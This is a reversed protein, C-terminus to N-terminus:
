IQAFSLANTRASPSSGGCREVASGLGAADVLEAVGAYRVYDLPVAALRPSIVHPDQKAAVFHSKRGLRLTAKADPRRSSM